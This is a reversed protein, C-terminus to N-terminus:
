AAASGSRARARARAHVERLERQQGGRERREVVHDVGARREHHDRESPQCQAKRGVNTVSSTGNTSRTGVQVIATKRAVRPWSTAGRTGVRRVGRGTRAAGPAAAPDPARRRRSTSCASRTSGRRCTSRARQRPRRAPAARDAGGGEPSLHVVIDSLIPIDPLQVQLFASAAPRGAGGGRVRRLPGFDALAALDDPIRLHPTDHGLRERLYGQLAMEVEMLRFLSRKERNKRLIALLPAAVVDRALSWEGAAILTALQDLSKFLVESELPALRM